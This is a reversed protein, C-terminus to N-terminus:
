NWEGYLLREEWDPHIYPIASFAMQIWSGLDSALSWTKTWFENYNEGDQYEYITENDTVKM